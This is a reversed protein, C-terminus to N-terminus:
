YVINRPVASATVPHSLNDRVIRFAIVVKGVTGVPLDPDAPPAATFINQTATIPFVNDVMEYFNAGGDVSVQLAQNLPVYRYIVDRGDADVLSCQNGDPSVYITAVDPDNWASRITHTMQIVANRSCISIMSLDQNANYSHFAADFAVATATLLMAAIALAILIEVISMGM